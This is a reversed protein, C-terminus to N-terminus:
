HQISIRLVSETMEDTVTVFTRQDDFLMICFEYEKKVACVGLLRRGSRLVVALLNGVEPENEEKAFVLDGHNFMPFNQGGVVEIM